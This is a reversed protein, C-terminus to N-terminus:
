TLCTSLAHLDPKAFPLLSPLSFPSSPSIPTPHTRATRGSTHCLLIALPVYMGTAMSRYLAHPRLEALESLGRAPCFPITFGLYALSSIMLVSFVPSPSTKADLDHTYSMCYHTYRAPLEQPQKEKRRNKETRRKKNEVVGWGMGERGGGVGSGGVPLLGM